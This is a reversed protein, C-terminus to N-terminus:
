GAPDGRRLLDVCQVAIRGATESEGGPPWSSVARHENRGLLLAQRGVDNSGWAIGGVQIARGQQEFHIGTRLFRAHRSRGFPLSKESPQAILM